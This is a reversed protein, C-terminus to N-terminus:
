RNDPDAEVWQLIRELGELAMMVMSGACFSLPNTESDLMAAQGQRTKDQRAKGLRLKDQGQRTKDKDQRTQM